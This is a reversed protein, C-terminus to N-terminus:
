TSCRRKRTTAWKECHMCTRRRAARRQEDGAPRLTTGAVVRSWASGAAARVRFTYSVGGALNKKRCANGALRTGLWHQASAPRWQLEFPGAGDWALDLSTASRAVVRLRQPPPATERSRSLLADRAANLRSMAVGADGRLGAAVKDPHCLIAMDRYAETVDAAPCGKCVGLADEHSTARLVNRLAMRLVREDGRGM